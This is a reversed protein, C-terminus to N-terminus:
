FYHCFVRTDKRPAPNRALIASAMRILREMQVFMDDDVQDNKLKKGGGHQQQWHALIEAALVRFLLLDKLFIKLIPRQM